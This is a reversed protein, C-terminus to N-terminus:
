ARAAAKHARRLLLRLSPYGLTLTQLMWAFASEPAAGSRAIRFAYVAEGVHLAVAVVFVAILVAAPPLWFLHATWWGLAAPSFALIGLTTMGAGISLWWGVHPRDIM